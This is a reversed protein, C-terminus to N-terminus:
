WSMVVFPIKKTVWKTCREYCIRSIENIANVVILRCRRVVSRQSEDIPEISVIEIQIILWKQGFNFINVPVEIPSTKNNGNNMYALKLDKTM